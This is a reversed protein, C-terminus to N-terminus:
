RTKRFVIWYLIKEVWIEGFQERVDKRMWNYLGRAGGRARIQTEQLKFAFEGDNIVKISQIKGDYKVFMWDGKRWFTYSKYTTKEM